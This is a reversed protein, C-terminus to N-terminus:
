RSRALIARPRPGGFETGSIGDDVYVHEDALPWGKSAAFARAHEVQRIVSRQDDHVGSQQTSMRACM